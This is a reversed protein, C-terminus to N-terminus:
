AIPRWIERMLTPMAKLNVGSLKTTGERATWNTPRRPDGLDKPDVDLGFAPALDAIVQKISEVPPQCEATIGMKRVVAVMLQMYPSLHVEDGGAALNGLAQTAAHENPPPYQSAVLAEFETRRVFIHEFGAGDFANSFPEGPHAVCNIFWNSLRQNSWATSPLPRVDGGGKSRTGTPLSGSEAWSRLTEQVAGKKALGAALSERLTPLRSQVAEREAETLRRENRAGSTLSPPPPPLLSSELNGIQRSLAHSDAFGSTGWGDFMANALAIAARGLFMWEPPDTPWHSHRSWITDM